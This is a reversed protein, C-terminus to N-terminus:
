VVKSRKFGGIQELENMSKQAKKATSFKESSVNYDSGNVTKSVRFINTENYSDYERIIKYPSNPLTSDDYETTEFSVREYLENAIKLYGFYVLVASALLLVAVILLVANLTLSNIFTLLM